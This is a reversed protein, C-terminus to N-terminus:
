SRDPAVTGATGNLADVVDDLATNITLGWTDESGGITPKTITVAM